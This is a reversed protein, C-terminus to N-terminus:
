GSSKWSTAAWRPANSHRLVRRSSTGYPQPPRSRPRAAHSERAELAARRPSRPPPAALHRTPEPCRIPVSAPALTSYRSRDRWHCQRHLRLRRLRHWPWRRRVAAEVSHKGRSTASGRRSGFTTAGRRGRKRSRSSVCGSSSSSGSSSSNTSSPSLSPSVHSSRSSIFSRNSRSGTSGRSRGQSTRWPAAQDAAPAKRESLVACRVV